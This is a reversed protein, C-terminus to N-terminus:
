MDSITEKSMNALMADAESSNPVFGTGRNRNDQSSKTSQRQQKQSSEKKQLELNQGSQTMTKNGKRTLMGVPIDFSPFGGKTGTGAGGEMATLKQQQRM